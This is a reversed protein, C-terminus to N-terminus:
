PEGFDSDKEDDIMLIKMPFFTFLDDLNEYKLM